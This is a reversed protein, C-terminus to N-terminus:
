SKPRARARVGDLPWFGYIARGPELDWFRTANDGVGYVVAYPVDSALIARVLRAFDRQSMWTAAYRKFKEEDTLSLWGSSARVSEDRPDDARTISGIRVCAVRMGYRDSYYRGLAEGFAKWVGYLGDPRYPADTRLTRGFGPEYIQPADDAEYMGVCHNSSAFVIRKVGNRRAAEYVNYTGGINTGYVSGWDAEVEVVGALHIVTECGALAGVMADLDRVDAEVDANRLDIRVVDHDVALDACLRTGITGNAGTVAIKTM